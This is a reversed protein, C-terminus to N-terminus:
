ESRLADVPNAVAAKGTQWGLVLLVLGIMGLTAAPFLWLPPLARDSFNQLWKHLLIGALSSAVAAAIVVMRIFEKSLLYVVQRVTAGMVKRIGIEKTRQNTTFLVLGLMGLLSIFVTVGTAWNLLVTLNNVKKYAKAISQDFFTYDFDEEPYLQRFDRGIANIASSWSSGDASQPKLAVHLVHCNRAAATLAVPKIKSMFQTRFDPMVGVIVTKGTRQGTVGAYVM